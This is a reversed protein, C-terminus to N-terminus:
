IRQSQTNREITGKKKKPDGAITVPPYTIPTKNKSNMKEGNGTVLM